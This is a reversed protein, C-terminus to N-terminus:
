GFAIKIGANNARGFGVNEDMPIYIVRQGFETNLREKLGNMSHNDVVIIEFTFDKSHEYVSKIANVLLDETNYNVLIISVDLIYM